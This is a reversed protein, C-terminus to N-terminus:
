EYRKKISTPIKKLQYALTDHQVSYESDFRRYGLQGKLVNIVILASLTVGKVKSEISEVTNSLEANETIPLFMIVGSPSGIDGVLAYKNLLKNDKIIELLLNGRTANFKEGNVYKLILIGVYKVSLSETVITARKIIERQRLKYYAYRAGGKSLHYNTDIESFNESGDTNMEKLVAFEGQMIDDDSPRQNEKTRSWIREKLLTDFFDAGAPVFGYNISLPSVDWISDYNRLASETRLKWVTIAALISNEELIHIVLDYDGRTAAAFQVRPESEMSAKLEVTSPQKGSFKVLIIFHMYGLRLMDIEATYRIGLKKELNRIRAYSASSSIGVLRGVEAFSARSNMSLVTLLKSDTENTEAYTLNAQALKESEGKQESWIIKGGREAILAKARELDDTYSAIKKVYTGDDLIRGLYESKTKTKKKEKDWTGSERYVYYRGKVPILYIKGSSEKRLKEFATKIQTPMEM